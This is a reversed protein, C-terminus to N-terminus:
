TFKFNKSTWKHTAMIKDLAYANPRSYVEALPWSPRQSLEFFSLHSPHHAGRHHGGFQAVIMVYCAAIAKFVNILTAKDFERERDHKVKNYSFFWDLDSTPSGGVKWNEFPTLPKLWPFSPFRISYESLKMPAALKVYDNTTM